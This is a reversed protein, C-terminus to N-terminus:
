SKAPAMLAVPGPELIKPPASGTDVPAIASDTDSLFKDLMGQISNKADDPGTDRMDNHQFDTKVVQIGAKECEEDTPIVGPDTKFQPDHSRFSLIKFKGATVFPVRLNDLTVVKKVEDPYQKAFYMTIDGGMSHGVMTVRAYDANPQVKKMEQMALHINAVGRLIQPLRGVYLEGPKTVMPPDTPLDHQPSVVMYGRAAFINALFGYETNKVTNGHNIVAVPMTIMGANAQMEKDRRIAIDVPVPRNDRSADYFTITEHKIAWKSATFYAVGCLAGVSVLVAIGRKM